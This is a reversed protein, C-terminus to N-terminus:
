PQTTTTQRPPRRTNHNPQNARRSNRRWPGGRLRRHLTGERLIVGALPLAGEPTNRVALLLVGKYLIANVYHPDLRTHATSTSRPATDVLQANPAETSSGIQQTLVLGLEASRTPSKRIRRRRPSSSPPPTTSDNENEFAPRRDHPRSPTPVTRVRPAAANTAPSRRVPTRTGASKALAFAAGGRIVLALGVFLARRSARSRGSAQASRRPRVFVRLVEAARATYDSHLTDYTDETSAPDARERELDRAVQTLFERETDAGHASRRHPRAMLRRAHRAVLGGDDPTAVGARTGRPGRAYAAGLGAVALCSRWGASGVGCPSPRDGRPLLSNDRYSRQIGRHDRRREAARVEAGSGLRPDFAVRELETPPGSQLRWLDPV